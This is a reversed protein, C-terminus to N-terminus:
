CFNSGRIFRSGMEKPVIEEALQYIRTGLGQPWRDSPSTDLERAREIAFYVKDMFPKTDLNSKNYSGLLEILEKELRSRRAGTM